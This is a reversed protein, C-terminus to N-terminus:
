AAQIDIGTIRFTSPGGNAVCMLGAATTGATLSVPATWGDGTPTIFAYTGNRVRARLGGGVYGKVNFSITLAAGPGIAALLDNLLQGFTLFADNGNADTFVIEGEVLDYSIGPQSFFMYCGPLTIDPDPYLNM